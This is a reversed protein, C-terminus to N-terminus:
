AVRAPFLMSTLLVLECSGRVVEVRQGRNCGCSPSANRAELDVVHTQWATDHGEEDDRGRIFAVIGASESGPRGGESRPFAEHWKQVLSQRQFIRVLGLASLLPRRTFLFYLLNAGSFM